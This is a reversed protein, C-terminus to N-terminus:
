KKTKKAELEKFSQESMAKIDLQECFAVIKDLCQKFNPKTGKIDFSIWQENCSVFQSFAYLSAILKENDEDAFLKPIDSDTYYVLIRILNKIYTGKDAKLKYVQFIFGQYRGELLFFFNYHEIGEKLEFGLDYLPAFNGGRLFAKIGKNYVRFQYLYLLFLLGWMMLTCGIFLSIYLELNHNPKDILSDYIYLGFMSLFLFLAMGLGVRIMDKRLHQKTKIQM